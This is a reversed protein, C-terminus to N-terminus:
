RQSESLPMTACEEAMENWFGELVRIKDDPSLKRFNETITESIM